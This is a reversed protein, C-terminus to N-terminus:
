QDGYGVALYRFTTTSLNTANAVEVLSVNTEADTFAHDHEYGFSRDHTHNGTSGTNGTFAPIDVTHTHGAVAAAAAAADVGAGAATPTGSTASPHDHDLTHSHGSGTTTAAAFKSARVTVGGPEGTVNGTTAKDYRDRNIKIVVKGHAINGSLDQNYLYEFDEAELSGPTEITLKYFHIEAFSASLDHLFGGTAYSAPGSVNGVAIKPITVVDLAM